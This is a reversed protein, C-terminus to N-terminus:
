ASDHKRMGFATQSFARAALLMRAFQAIKLKVLQDRATRLCLERVVHKQVGVTCSLLNWLSSTLKLSLTITKTCFQILKQTVFPCKARSKELPRFKALPTIRSPRVSATRRSWCNFRTNERQLARSLLLGRRHGDRRVVPDHALLFLGCGSFVGSVFLPLFMADVDDDDDDEEEDEEDPPL